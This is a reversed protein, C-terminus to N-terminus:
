LNRGIWFSVVIVILGYAFRRPLTYKEQYRNNKVIYVEIISIYFYILLPVFILIFSNYKIAARVNGQLLFQVARQGGCGPCLWGSQEYFYCTEIDFVGNGFVKYYYYLIVIIPVLFMLRISWKRM